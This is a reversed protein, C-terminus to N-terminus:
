FPSARGMRRSLPRLNCNKTFELIEILRNTEVMLKMGFHDSHSFSASLTMMVTRRPFDWGAPFTVALDGRLRLIESFRPQLPRKVALAHSAVAFPAMGGFANYAVYGTFPLVYRFIPLIVGIYDTNLMRYDGLWGFFYIIGWVFGARHHCKVM